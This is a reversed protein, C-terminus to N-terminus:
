DFGGDTAPDLTPIPISVGADGFIIPGAFQLQGGSMVVLTAPPIYTVAVTGSPCGSPITVNIDLVGHDPSITGMTASVLQPPNADCVRTVDVSVDVPDEGIGVVRGSCNMVDGAQVCVPAGAFTPTVHDFHVGVSCASLALASVATAFRM